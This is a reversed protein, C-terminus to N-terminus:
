MLCEDGDNFFFADSYTDVEVIGEFRWLEFGWGLGGGVWGGVWAGRGRVELFLVCASQRPVTGPWSRV